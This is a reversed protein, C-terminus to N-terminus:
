VNGTFESKGQLYVRVKETNFYTRLFSVAFIILVLLIYIKVTDYIFFHLALASASLKDLGFFGYVLTDVMQEWLTFM